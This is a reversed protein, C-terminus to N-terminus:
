LYAALPQCPSVAGDWRIALSGKEIFPCTYVGQGMMGNNVQISYNGQQVDALPQQTHENVDIRPMNIRPHLIPSKIHHMTCPAAICYRRDCNMLIRCSTPSPSSKPALRTGLALVRPLDAINRKMAVFAIGLQLTTKMRSGRYRLYPLRELNAIVQPLTAGLRV